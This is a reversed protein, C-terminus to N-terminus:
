VADDYTMKVLIKVKQGCDKLFHLIAKDIYRYVICNRQISGLNKNEEDEELIGNDEEKTTPYRELAADTIKM